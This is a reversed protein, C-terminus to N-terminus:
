FHYCYKLNNNTLKDANRRNEIIKKKAVPTFLEARILENRVPM